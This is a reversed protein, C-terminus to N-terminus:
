KEPQPILLYLPSNRKLVLKCAGGAASIPHREGVANVWLARGLGPRRRRQSFRVLVHAAARGLVQSQPAIEKIAGYSHTLLEAYLKPRV